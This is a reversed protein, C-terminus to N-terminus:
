RQVVYQQVATLPHTSRNTATTHQQRTDLPEHKTKKQKKEGAIGAGRERLEANQFHVNYQSQHKFDSM